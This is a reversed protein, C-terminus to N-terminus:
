EERINSSIPLSLRVTTGQGPASDYHLQGGHVKVIGYCMSLGLGLREEKTSYFPEFVKKVNEKRIGCGSDEFEVCIHDNKVSKSIKLSGGDPMADIANEILNILVEHIQQENIEIQLASSMPKKIVQINKTTFDNELSKVAADIINDMNVAKVQGKVPKSFVLLKHVLEKIRDAQKAITKFNKATGQDLEEMLSLEVRGLIIMLPNNIEHALNSVLQTLSSLKESEVALTQDRKLEEIEKLLQERSHEEM